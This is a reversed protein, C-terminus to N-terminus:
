HNLSHTENTPFFIFVLAGSCLAFLLYYFAVFHSTSHHQLATIALSTTGGFIAVGICYSIANSRARIGVPFVQLIFLGSVTMLMGIHLVCFLYSAMFLEAKNSNVAVFSVFSCLGIAFLLYTIVLKHQKIRDSLLGGFLAGLAMILGAYSTILFNFGANRYGINNLFHPMYFVMCYISVSTPLISGISLLLKVWYHKVWYHKVATAASNASSALEHLEQPKNAFSYRRLFVGLVILGFGALFPLRWGWGYLQDHTLALNLFAAFAAGASSSLGQAMFQFGLLLGPKKGSEILLSSAASSEGGAAFGQLMRALVLLVPSLVGALAYSPLLCILLSGASMILMSYYLAIARGKKDAVYGLIIGGLPRVVFGLAFVSFSLLMAIYHSKHPFVAAAIPAAFFSYITFDFFEIFSGLTAIFILKAKSYM